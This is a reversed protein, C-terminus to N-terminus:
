LSNGVIMMYYNARPMGERKKRKFRPLDSNLEFRWVCTFRLVDGGLRRFAAIFAVKRHITDTFYKVLNADLQAPM